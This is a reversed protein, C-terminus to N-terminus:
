RPSQAHVCHLTTYIPGNPTLVSKKLKVTDLHFSGFLTAESALITDVLQVRNKGSRVRAITIHPSFRQRDLPFGLPVLKTNVQRHLDLLELHGADFAIWVVNVRHPNPFVGVGKLTVQFSQFALDDLGERIQDLRAPTVNGLFRLTLHLNHPDVLKLNAGTAHLAADLRTIAALTPQDEIDVAVFSRIPQSM